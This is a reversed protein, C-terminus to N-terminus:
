AVFRRRLGSSWWEVLLVLALLTYLYTWVEGYDASGWELKIYYGLTEWGFFGLIASSRLACELRYLAYASMDPLARPLLGFVFVHAPRAGTARLAVAANRPAEDLMESFVKALTGGFPIAIAIVASLDNLGLAALFLVAWILEHVSRMGAIVVRTTSYVAPAIVRQAWRGVTTRAGAPDGSWWATSALFGLVVGIVVSLSMASVAFVLTLKAADLAQLLLPEAGAIRDEVPRTLSPRFAYSLFRGMQRFDTADPVIQTWTLDLTVFAWAGMALIALLVAGRPRLRSPAPPLAVASRAM